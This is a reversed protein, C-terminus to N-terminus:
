SDLLDRTEWGPRKRTDRTKTLPEVVWGTVWFGPIGKSEGRGIVVVAGLEDGFRNRGSEGCTLVLASCQSLSNRKSRM